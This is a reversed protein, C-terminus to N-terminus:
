SVPKCHSINIAKLSDFKDNYIVCYVHAIVESHGLFGYVDVISGAPLMGKQEKKIGKTHYYWIYEDLLEAKFLM